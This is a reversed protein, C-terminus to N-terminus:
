VSFMGRGCLLESWLQLISRTGDTTIMESKPIRIGDVLEAVAYSLDADPRVYAPDKGGLKTSPKRFTWPLLAASMIM